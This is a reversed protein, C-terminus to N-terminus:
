KDTLGAVVGCYLVMFALMLAVFDAGHLDINFLMAGVIMIEVTIVVGLIMAMAGSFKQTEKGHQEKEVYGQMAARRVKTKRYSNWM